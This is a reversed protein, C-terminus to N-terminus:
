IPLFPFPLHNPDTPSQIWICVTHLPSQHSLHLTKSPLCQRHLSTGLCHQRTDRPRNAGDQDSRSLFLMCNQCRVSPWRCAPAQQYSTPLPAPGSHGHHGATTTGTGADQQHICEAAVWQISVRSQAQGTDLVESGQQHRSLLPSEKREREGRGKEGGIGRGM